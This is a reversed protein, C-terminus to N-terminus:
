WYYDFIALRIVYHRSPVIPQNNNRCVWGGAPTNRFYRMRMENLCSQIATRYDNKLFLHKGTRIKMIRDKILNWLEQESLGGLNDHAKACRLSYFAMLHAVMQFIPRQCSHKEIIKPNVQLVLSGVLTTYLANVNAPGGIIPSM